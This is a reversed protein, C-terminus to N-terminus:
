EADKVKYYDGIMQQNSDFFCKSIADAQKVSMDIKANSVMMVLAQTRQMEGRLIELAQEKNM